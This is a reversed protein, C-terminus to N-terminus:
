KMKIVQYAPVQSTLLTRRAFVVTFIIKMPLSLSLAAQSHLGMLCFMGLTFVFTLAAFSANHLLFWMLISVIWPFFIDPYVRMFRLTCYPFGRILIQGLGFFKKNLPFFIELLKQRTSVPKTVHFVLPVGVHIISCKKWLRSLLEREENGYLWPTWNGSSVICEKRALLAGGFYPQGNRWPFISRDILSTERLVKGTDVDIDITRGVFVDGTIRGRIVDLIVPIFEGSLLMDGDLYLIWKGQAHITGIYRGASASMYSDCRIMLVSDFLECALDLSGDSSCSDVYVTEVKIGEAVLPEISRYINKLM